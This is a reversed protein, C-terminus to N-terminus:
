FVSVQQFGTSSISPIMSLRHLGALNGIWCCVPMLEDTAEGRSYKPMIRHGFNEVIRGFRYPPADVAAEHIRLFCSFFFSFLAGKNAYKLVAGRIENRRSKIESNVSSLAPWVRLAPLLSSFFLQSPNWSINDRSPPPLSGIAARSYLCNPLIAATECSNREETGEVTKWAGSHKGFRYGGRDFREERQGRSTSVGGVVPALM